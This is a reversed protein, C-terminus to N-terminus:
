EKDSEESYDTGIEDINGEEINKSMINVLIDGIYNKFETSGELEKQNLPTEIINYVFQLYVDGNESEDFKVKGYQYVTDAYDGGLLKLHITTGKDDPIIYEWEKGESLQRM